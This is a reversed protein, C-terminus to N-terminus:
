QALRSDRPMQCAKRSAVEEDHVRSLMSPVPLLQDRLPERDASLQRDLSIRFSVAPRAAVEGLLGLGNPEELHRRGTVRTPRAAPSAMQNGKLDPSSKSHDISVISM